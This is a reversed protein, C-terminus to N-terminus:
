FTWSNKFSWKERTAEQAAPKVSSPGAVKTGPDLSQDNVGRSKRDAMM